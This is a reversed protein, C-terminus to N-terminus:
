CGVVNCLLYILEPPVLFFFVFLILPNALSCEQFCTFLVRFPSAGPLNEGSFCLRVPTDHGARRAPEIPM